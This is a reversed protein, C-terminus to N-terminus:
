VLGRRAARGRRREAAVRDAALAEDTKPPRPREARTPSLALTRKPWERLGFCGPSVRVFTGGKVHQLTLQASITAAPTKGRFIREGDPRARDQAIVREAIVGIHMPRGEAALVAAAMGPGSVKPADGTTAVKRTQKAPAKRARTTKKDAMPVEETTATSVRVAPTHMTANMPAGTLASLAEEARVYARWARDRKAQAVDVRSPGADDGLLEANMEAAIKRARGATSVMAVPGYRARERDRVYWGRAVKVAYFRPQECDTTLWRLPDGNSGNGAGKLCVTATCRTCRAAVILGEGFYWEGLEHGHEGAVAAADRQLEAVIPRLREADRELEDYRALVERATRLTEGKAPALRAGYRRRRHIDYSIM